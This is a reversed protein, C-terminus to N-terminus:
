IKRKIHKAVSNLDYPNIKSGIIEDKMTRKDVENIVDIMENIKDFLKENYHQYSKEEITLKKIM